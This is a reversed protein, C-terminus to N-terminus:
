EGERPQLAFRDMSLGLWRCIRTFTDLTPAIHQSEIRSITSEAVGIESAAEAMTLKRDARKMAMADALRITDITESRSRLM